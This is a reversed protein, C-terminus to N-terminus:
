RPVYVGSPRGASGCGASYGSAGMGGPTGRPGAAVGGGGTEDVRSSRNSGASPVGGDHDRPHAAHRHQCQTDRDAHGSAGEATQVRQRKGAGDPVLRPRRFVVNLQGIDARQFRIRGDQQTVDDDATHIRHPNAVPVGIDLDRDLGADRDRGIRHCGHPLGAQQTRHVQRQVGRQALRRLATKGGARGQAQVFGGGIRGSLLRERRQRDHDVAPSDPLEAVDDGFEVRREVAPLTLDPVQQQAEVVEDPHQGGLAVGDVRRHDRQVPQGPGEGALGLYQGPCQVAYRRSQVHQNAFTRLQGGCQGFQAGEARDGGSQDVVGLGIQHGVQAVQFGGQASQGIDTGFQDGCQGVEGSEGVALVEDVAADAAVVQILVDDEVEGNRPQLPRQHEAGRPALFARFQNGRRPIRPVRGVGVIRQICRQRWRRHLNCRNRWQDIRDVGLRHCLGARGALCEPLGAGLM